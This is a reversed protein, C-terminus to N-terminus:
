PKVSKGLFKLCLFDRFQMWNVHIAGGKSVKAEFGPWYELYSNWCEIQTENHVLPMRALYGSAFYGESESGLLLVLCKEGKKFWPDPMWSQQAAIKIKKSLNGKYVEIPEIVVWRGKSKVSKVKVLAVLGIKEYELFNFITHPGNKIYDEKFENYEKLIVGKDIELEEPLPKHLILMLWDLAENYQKVIDEYEKSGLEYKNLNSKLIRLEELMDDSM